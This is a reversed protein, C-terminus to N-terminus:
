EILLCGCGSAIRVEGIVAARVGQDAMRAVCEGAQERAMSFLLGGSTQPDFVFDLVLPDIGQGVRTWPQYFRRNRYAGAPVMGMRAFARAPELLPIDGAALAMDTKSGLAMELLHGGLGFGTVDTCASVPFRLMIEAATRNLQAMTDVMLDLAARDALRAKVATALIGTGVPKTLVLVHGPVATSNALVRDPHVLGTVSLGYKFEPDEVSHGGVLTAGAAEITDIGGQLTEELVSEPLDQSPFCVINMATLPKGGMAYVDSLSNAAAIRGFDYPSDTVPTLFDLTQVLALDPALRFVGADDSHDLGVILDPHSTLRLKKVV